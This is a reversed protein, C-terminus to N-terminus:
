VGQKSDPSSQQERTANEELADAIRATNDAIQQLLKRRARFGDLILSVILVVLVVGLLNSFLDWWDMGLLNGWLHFSDM